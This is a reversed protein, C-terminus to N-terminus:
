RRVDILTKAAFDDRIRKEDRAQSVLSAAWVLPVFYQNSPEAASSQESCGPIKIGSINRKYRLNNLADKEDRTMLGSLVCLFNSFNQVDM